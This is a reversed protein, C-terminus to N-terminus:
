IGTKIKNSYRRFIIYKYLKKKLIKLLNIIHYRFIEQIKEINGM